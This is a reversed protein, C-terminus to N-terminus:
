YINKFDNNLGHNKGGCSCECNHGTANLCKGDCITEKVFKGYIPKGFDLLLIKGCECKITSNHNLPTKGDKQFGNFYYKGVEYRTSKGCSCKLMLYGTFEIGRKYTQM